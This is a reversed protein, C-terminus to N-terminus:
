LLDQAKRLPLLNKKIREKKTTSLSKKAGFGTMSALSKNDILGSKRSKSKSNSSHM